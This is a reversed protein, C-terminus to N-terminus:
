REVTAMYISHSGWGATAEDSIPSWTWTWSGGPSCGSARRWSPAMKERPHPSWLSPQGREPEWRSRGVGAERLVANGGAQSATHGSPVELAASISCLPFSTTARLVWRGVLRCVKRGAQAKGWSHDWAPQLGQVRPRNRMWSTAAQSPAWDLGGHGLPAQCYLLGSVLPCAQDTRLHVCPAATMNGLM